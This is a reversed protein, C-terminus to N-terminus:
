SKRELYFQPFEGVIKYADRGNKAYEELKTVIIDLGEALDLNNSNCLEWYAQVGVSLVCLVCQDKDRQRTTLDASFYPLASQDCQDRSFRVCYRFQQINEKFYGNISFDQLDIFLHDFRKLYSQKLMLMEVNTIKKKNGM